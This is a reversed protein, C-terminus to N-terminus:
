KELKAAVSKSVFISNTTWLRDHRTYLFPVIDWLVYEGHLNLYSLLDVFSTQGDYCDAFTTELYIFSVAQQELLFRSGKLVSLEAGQVDIKLIDIRSLDSDKCYNDLTDAKIELLAYDYKHDTSIRRIRENPCLLSSAEPVRTAYFPVTGAKDTLAIQRLKVGSVNNWNAALTSFISPNPEFSHIQSDPWVQRFKEISQGINAGIDCITPNLIELKAILRQLRSFSESERDELYLTKGFVAQGSDGISNGTNEFANKSNNKM